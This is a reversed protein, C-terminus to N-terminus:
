SRLPSPLPNNRGRLFTNHTNLPRDFSGACSPAYPSLMYRCQLRLGTLPDRLCARVLELSDWAHASLRLCPTWPSGNALASGRPGPLNQLRLESSGCSRQRYCGAWTAGLWCPHPRMLQQWSEQHLLTVPGQKVFSKGSASGPPQLYRLHCPKSNDETEPVPNRWSEKAWRFLPLGPFEYCSIKDWSFFLASAETYLSTSSRMGRITEWRKAAHEWCAPPKIEQAPQPQLVALRGPSRSQGQLHRHRQLPSHIPPLQYM